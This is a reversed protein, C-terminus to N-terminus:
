PNKILDNLKKNNNKLGWTITKKLFNANYKM